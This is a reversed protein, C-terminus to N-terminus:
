AVAGFNVVQRGGETLVTDRKNFHVAHITPLFPGCILTVADRLLPQRSFAVLARVGYSATSAFRPAGPAKISRVGLISLALPNADASLTLCRKVFPTTVGKAFAAASVVPFYFCGVSCPKVLFTKAGVATLRFAHVCEKLRAIGAAFASPFRDYIDGSLKM